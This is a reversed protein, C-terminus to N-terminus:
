TTFGIILFNEFKIKQVQAYALLWFTLFDSFISENKKRIM